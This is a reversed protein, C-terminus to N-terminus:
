SILAKWRGREVWMLYLSLLSIGLLMPQLIGDGAVFQHFALINVIIPGLILLGVNRTRPLLVLLGGLLELVKVFNMYGTPGFAAMFSAIPTDKPLEPTPAMGLLVVSASMIFLGGLLLSAIHPAYKMPAAATSM